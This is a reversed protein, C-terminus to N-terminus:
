KRWQKRYRLFIMLSWPFAIFLNSLLYAAGIGSGSYRSGLLFSSAGIVIGLAISLIVFPERKHARLYVALTSLANAVIIGLLLVATPMPSLIRQAFHHHIINLGVVVLFGGMACICMASVSAISVRWLLRDLTKYEKRAIMSAFQPGRTLNGLRTGFGAALVMARM